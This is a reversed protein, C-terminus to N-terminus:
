PLLYWIHRVRGIDVPTNLYAQFYAILISQRALRCPVDRCVFFCYGLKRHSVNPGRHFQIYFILNPRFM